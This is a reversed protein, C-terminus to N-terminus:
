EIGRKKKLRRVDKALESQVAKRLEDTASATNYLAGDFEEEIAISFKVSEYEATRVLEEMQYRVKM